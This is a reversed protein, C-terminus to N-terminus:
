TCGGDPRVISASRWAAALHGVAAATQPPSFGRVFVCMYISRFLIVSFLAAQQTQTQFLVGATWYTCTLAICKAHTRNIIFVRFALCGRGSWRQQHRRQLNWNRRRDGLEMELRGATTGPEHTRQVPDRLRDSRATGVVGGRLDLSAQRYGRWM